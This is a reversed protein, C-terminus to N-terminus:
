KASHLPAGAPQAAERKHYALWYVLGVFGGGGVINGLTAPILNHIINVFTIASVDVGAPVHGMQVMLWALPLFLMNAVCHEFGVAVFAAIPLIMGAIKDAVSRGAYAMWVGLCVLLNCMIGKFFITAFDPTLKGLALSIVASGVHGGNLDPFHCEWLLFVMVLSGVLNGVWVTVWNGLMEGVSIKRSAWAVVLLCNGTFLEAGAIMVLSLGLAFTVGGLVRQAAYGLTPDGLVIYFFMAGLSIAGGAVMSLVFEPGFPTHAKKVGLKEVKDLIDPPAIADSGYGAPVQVAKEDAM